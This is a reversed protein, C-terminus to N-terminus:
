DLLGVATDVMMESSHPSVAKAAKRKTSSATKTAVKKHVPMKAAKTSTKAMKIETRIKARSDRKATADATWQLDSASHEFSPLSPLNQGEVRSRERKIEQVYEQVLKRSQPTNSRDREELLRQLTTTQARLTVNRSEEVDKTQNLREHDLSLTEFMKISNGSQAPGVLQDKLDLM